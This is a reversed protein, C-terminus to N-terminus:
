VEVIRVPFTPQGALLAIVWRHHGDFLYLDGHWHIARGIDGSTSPEGNLLRALDFLTVAQQSPILQHTPVSTTPITAWQADTWQELHQHPFPRPLVPPHMTTADVRKRPCCVQRYSYRM